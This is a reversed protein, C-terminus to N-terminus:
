DGTSVIEEIERIIDSIEEISMVALVDAVLIDVRHQPFDHHSNESVCM